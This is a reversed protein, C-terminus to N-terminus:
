RATVTETVEDRLATWLQKAVRGFLAASVLLGLVGFWHIVRKQLVHAMEETWLNMGQFTRATTLDVQRDGPVGLESVSYIESKGRLKHAMMIWATTTDSAMHPREDDTLLHARLHHIEQDKVLVGPVQAVISLSTLAVAIMLRRRSYSENLWFAAPLLLFPVIPVLYRPGWCWGGDWFGLMADLLFGVVTVALVFRAAARHRRLFAPFGVLGLVLVPCFVLLGKDLSILLAPVSLPLNRLSFMHAHEGYGTEFINGYRAFNLVLHIVLVAVIPLAFILCARARKWYSGDTVALIYLGFIPAFVVHAVKILILFALAASGLVNGRTTGRIVGDFALFLLAAQLEDTFDSGAYRWCLTGFGLAVTFLLVSAPRLGFHLLVRSFSYLLLLGSAVNIFSIFFGALDPEKLHTVRAAVHALIVPPVFVLSTGIGFRSYFRGNTGPTGYATQPVDIRGATVISEATAMSPITDITEVYGKATFAYILGFVVFVRWNM